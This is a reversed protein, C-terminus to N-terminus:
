SADKKSDLYEKLQEENTDRSGYLKHFNIHCRECFTIGNNVDARLERNDAYNRIHHAHLKGAHDGCKQCTFEDRLLVFNRWKDIGESRRRKDERDKQSLEPNWGHHKEGRYDEIHCHGCKRGEQFHDFRVKIEHGRPCVCALQKKSSTYEELLTYGQKEVESRVFAPDLKVSAVSRKIGCERCRVGLTFHNFTSYFKNGCSCKFNVKGRSHVYPDLLECGFKAVYEIVYSEDLTVGKRMREYGCLLCKGGNNVNKVTTHAIRGCSCRFKLKTRNNIYVDDLLELGNESFIRRVEEITLKKGM